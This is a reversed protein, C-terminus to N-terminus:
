PDIHLKSALKMCTSFLDRRSAFNKYTRTPTLHVKFKGIEHLNDDITMMLRRLLLMDM